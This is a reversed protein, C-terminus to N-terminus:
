KKTLTLRVSTGKGKLSVAPYVPSTLNKFAVGLAKGNKFFEVTNDNFDLTITIIDGEGYGQHFAYVDWGRGCSVTGMRSYAWSELGLKGLCQDPRIGFRKSVVGVIILSVKEAKMIEIDFSQRGNEFEKTGVGTLYKGDVQSTMTVRDAHVLLNSCIKKMNWGEVEPGVSVTSTKSSKLIGKRKKKNIKITSKIKGCLKFTFAKWDNRRFEIAEQNLIHKFFENFKLSVIPRGGGSSDCEAVTIVPRGAVVAVCYEFICDPKTFYDATLIIVFVESDVIGEVIAHKDLGGSEKERWISIHKKKLTDAIKMSVDESKKEVNSLFCDWKTECAKVRELIYESEFEMMRAVELLENEKTKQLWDIMIKFREGASELIAAKSEIQEKLRKYNGLMEMSVAAYLQDNEKGKQVAYNLVNLKELEYLRQVEKMSVQYEQDLQRLQVAINTQLAWVPQEKIMEGLNYQPPIFVALKNRSKGSREFYVKEGNTRTLVIEGPIGEDNHKSFSTSSVCFSM